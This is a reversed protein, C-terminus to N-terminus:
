ASVHERSDLRVTEIRVSRAEELARDLSRFFARLKRASSGLDWGGERSAALADVRTQADPDLSIRVTVTSTFRSFLFGHAVGRIIGEQDDAEILEWRRLGGDVLGVSAQWVDDFPIAYTRGRLRPDDARAGTFAVSSTFGQVMSRALDSIM